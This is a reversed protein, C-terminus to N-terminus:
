STKHTVVAYLEVFQTQLSDIQLGAKEMEERFAEETYETYHTLDLRYEWGYNKKYVALWDRTLLPVRILLKPALPKISLLFSHRDQIHELVNSLVIANFKNTYTRKTADDWIYTINEHSFKQKAVDINKKVIDIGTIKRKNQALKHALIGTGCGIDLLHDNKSTNHLFFLHYNQIRHKPHIGNNKYKALVGVLRYTFDNLWCLLHILHTVLIKEM